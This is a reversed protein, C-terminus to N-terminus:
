GPPQAGSAENAAEMIVAFLAQMVEERSNFEGARIRGALDRMAAYAAPGAALAQQVAAPDLQGFLTDGDVMWSGNILVVDFTAEGGVPDSYSVTARTDTRDVIQPNQFGTQTLGGGMPDTFQDDAQEGFRENIANMLLGTVELGDRQMRVLARSSESPCHILDLFRAVKDLDDGALSSMFTLLEEPSGFGGAATPEASPVSRAPRETATLDIPRGALAALSRDIQRKLDVLDQGSGGRIQELQQKASNFAATAQEIAEAHRSRIADLEARAQEVSGLARGADVLRQLVAMHDALSRARTWHLRGQQGYIQAVMLRAADSEGRPSKSVARNAQTAAKDLDSIADAYFQELDGADGEGLGALSQRISDGFAAIAQRVSDAQEETVTDRRALGAETEQIQQLMTQLAAIRSEALNREPHLDHRLDNERQAVRYEYGDAERELEIAEQFSDLGEAHGRQAAESRLANAQEELSAAREMDQANAAEREAIPGDLEAVRQSYEHLEQRLESRKDDLMAQENDTSLRERSHALADLRLAADIESHLLFRLQHHESEIQEAQALSLSALKRQAGAALLAAAAQQGAEGEAAASLKALVGNLARRTEEFREDDPTLPTPTQQLERSAEAIVVQVEARRRAAEDECGGILLVTAFGSVLLAVFRGRMKM